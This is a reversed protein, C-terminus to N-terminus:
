AIGLLSKGINTKLIESTMFHLQLGRADRYYREVPIEKTYGQGGHVQLAMDTVQLVKETTFLKAQFASM